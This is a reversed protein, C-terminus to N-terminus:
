GHQTFLLVLSGTWQNAFKTATYLKCLWPLEPPSAQKFIGQMPNYTTHDIECKWAKPTKFIENSACKTGAAPSSRSCTITAGYEDENDDNDGKHIQTTESAM